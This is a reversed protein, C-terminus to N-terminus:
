QSPVKCSNLAEVSKTHYSSVISKNVEHLDIILVAELFMTHVFQLVSFWKANRQICRLKM